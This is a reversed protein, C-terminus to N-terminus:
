WVASRRKGFGLGGRGGAKGKSAAKKGKGRHPPVTARHSAESGVFRGTRKGMKKNPERLKPSAAMSCVLREQISSGTTLHDKGREQVMWQEALTKVVWPTPPVAACPDGSSRGTVNAIARPLCDFGFGNGSQLNYGLGLADVSPQLAGALACYRQVKAPTDLLRECMVTEQRLNARVAVRRPVDVDRSLKLFPLLADVM